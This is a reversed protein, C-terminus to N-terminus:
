IRDAIDNDQRFRRTGSNYTIMTTMILNNNNNATACWDPSAGRFATFDIHDITRLNCGTFILRRM